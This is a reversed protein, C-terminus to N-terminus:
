GKSPAKSGIEVKLSTGSQELIKMTVGANRVKVSSQPTVPSWYSKTDDFTTAPGEGRIYSPKSNVHLSLSEVKRLSFTADYVQMRSRWPLGDIRYNPRPHADVPLILGEGPHQSTNNDSRSTDWYTVLLGPQYAFHEVFNPKTNLFGFNYPGSQLFRDYSTYVRNSAIYYNDFDQSTTQGIRSFGGAAVLTTDASEAGDSLLTTGGATVAIDDAFFGPQSEADENGEQAPDTSYRIRFQVTKGAYKSLDFTAPTWAVQEGDIGNNEAPKTINGAVAEWGTGPDVEVFAYDCADEAKPGCDEINWRAKMSLQSSGAPLAVSGTLTSTLDNGTGSYWQYQGSAPAGRDTVVRKKPLPVVVGQAKPSNYEHPGLDLTRETGAPVIEYDFWGLQLKDWAGLDGPKEGLADGKAGLRSQAMLTWYEVGNDGGATDYHDPLGLDHGFEHTFVSLGGNEPQITYDGVWLGTDAIQTGGNLNGAPGTVGAQNYYAFWRHSWIADEGQQPDGDAQDGGAHVIQFHDIYGDPENFNGDGDYDNRDWKDFSKLNKVIAAETVGKARQDAVWQNVADSVLAWTNSCVNTACPYGDSRGYRAENYKVKVWDTVQGEVTYRGSSQKKYYSAVSNESKGFYLDQYHKRNYDAQWVTSNDQADPEPIANHLPGQFTTPGEIDPDTDQDPYNPNRENGFEALVVFIRDTQQRRLEVYQDKVPAAAAKARASAGAKTATAAKGLKVVTSGNKTVPKAKGAIVEQLAEQRLARRKSEAPNTLEDSTVAKSKKVTPQQGVPASAAAPAMGYAAGVGAALLVSM